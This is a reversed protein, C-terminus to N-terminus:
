QSAWPVELFIREKEVTAKKVREEELQSRGKMRRGKQM